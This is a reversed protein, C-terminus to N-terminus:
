MGLRHSSRIFRSSRPMKLINKQIIADNCTYTWLGSGREWMRSDKTSGTGIFESNEVLINKSRALVIGSGGTDYFKSNTIKINRHYYDAQAGNMRNVIHIGYHGTLSIDVNDIPEDYLIDGDNYSEFRMGYGKHKNDKNSPTPYIKFNVNSVNIHKINKGAGFKISFVLDKMWVMKTSDDM